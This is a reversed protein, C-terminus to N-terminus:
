GQSLSYLLTGCVHAFIIPFLLSSRVGRSAVNLYIALIICPLLFHENARHDYTTRRSQLPIPRKSSIRYGVNRYVKVRRSLIHPFVINCFVASDRNPIDNIDFLKLKPEFKVFIQHYSLRKM